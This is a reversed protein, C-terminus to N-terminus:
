MLTWQQKEEVVQLAEILGRNLEKALQQGRQLLGVHHEDDRQAIRRLADGRPMARKHRFQKM